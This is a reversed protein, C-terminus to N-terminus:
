GIGHLRDQHWEGISANGNEIVKIGAGQFQGKANFYGRYSWKERATMGDEYYGKGNTEGYTLGDKIAKLEPQLLWEFEKTIAIKLVTEPLIQLGYNITLVEECKRKIVKELLQHAAQSTEYNKTPLLSAGFFEHTNWVMNRIAIYNEKFLKRM